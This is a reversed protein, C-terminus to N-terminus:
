HKSFVSVDQKIWNASKCALLWNQFLCVVVSDIESWSMEKENQLSTGSHFHKVTEMTLFRHHTAPRTSCCIKLRQKPYRWPEAQGGRALRRFLHPRYKVRGNVVLSSTSSTSNSKSGTLREQLCTFSWRVGNENPWSGVVTFYAWCSWRGGVCKPEEWWLTAYDANPLHWRFCTPKWKLVQLIHATTAALPHPTTELLRTEDTVDSRNVM